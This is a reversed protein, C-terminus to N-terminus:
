RKPYSWGHYKEIHQLRSLLRGELYNLIRERRNFKPFYVGPTSEGRDAAADWRVRFRRSFFAEVYVCLSGVVSRRAGSNFPGVERRPREGVQAWSYGDLSVYRTRCAVCTAGQDPQNSAVPIGRVKCAACVDYRVTNNMM